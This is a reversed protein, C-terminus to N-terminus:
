DWQIMWDIICSCDLRKGPDGLRSANSESFIAHRGFNSYHRLVHICTRRKVTPFLKAHICTLRRSTTLPISWISNEEHFCLANGFSVCGQEGHSCCPSGSPLLLTGWHCLGLTPLKSISGRLAVVGVWMQSALCKSSIVSTCSIAPSRSSPSSPESSSPSDRGIVM